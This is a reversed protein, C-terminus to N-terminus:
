GGSAGSRKAQGRRLSGSKLCLRLEQEAEAKTWHLRTTLRTVAEKFDGGAEMFMRQAFPDPMTVDTM